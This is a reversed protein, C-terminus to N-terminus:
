PGGRGATSGAARSATAGESMKAVHDTSITNMAATGGRRADLRKSGASTCAWGPHVGLLGTQAAIKVRYGYTM